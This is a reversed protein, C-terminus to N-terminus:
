FTHPTFRLPFIHITEKKCKHKWIEYKWYLSLTIVYDVNGWVTIRIRKLDVFNVKILRKIYSM